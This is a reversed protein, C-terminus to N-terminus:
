VSEFGGDDWLEDPISVLTEVDVDSRMRTSGVEDMGWCLSTVELEGDRVRVGHGYAGDIWYTWGGHEGCADMREGVFRFTHMDSPVRDLPGFEGAGDSSISIRWPPREENDTEWIEVDTTTTMEKSREYTGVDNRAM